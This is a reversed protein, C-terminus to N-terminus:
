NRKENNFEMIKTIKLYEDEMGLICFIQAWTNTHSYEWAYQIQGSISKPIEGYQIYNIDYCYKSPKSVICPKGMFLIKLIEEKSSAACAKALRYYKPSDRQAVNREIQDPGFGAGIFKANKFTGMLEYVFQSNKNDINFYIVDCEPIDLNEDSLVSLEDLLADPVNYRYNPFPLNPGVIKIAPYERSFINIDSENTVIIDPNTQAIEFIGGMVYEFEIGINSLYDKSNRLSFINSIIKMM